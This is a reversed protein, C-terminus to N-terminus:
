GNQIAPAPNQLNPFTASNQQLQTQQQQLTQRYLNAPAAMTTSPSVATSTPITTGLSGNLGPLIPLANGPQLQLNTDDFKVVVAFAVEVFYHLMELSVFDREQLVFHNTNIHCFL